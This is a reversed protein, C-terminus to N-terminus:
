DEADIATAAAIEEDTFPADNSQAAVAAKVLLQRAMLRLHDVETLYDALSVWETTPDETADHRPAPM